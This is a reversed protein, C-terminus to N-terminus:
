FLIPYILFLKFKWIIELTNIYTGPNYPLDDDTEPYSLRYYIPQDIGTDGDIAQVRFTQESKEKFQQVAWIEVWRPPRHEINEVQVMLTATQTNPLSDQLM